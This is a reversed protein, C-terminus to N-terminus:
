RERLTRGDRERSNMGESIITDECVLVAGVPVEDVLEAEKALVIARDMWRELMNIEM